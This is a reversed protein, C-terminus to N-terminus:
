AALWAPPQMLTGQHSQKPLNSLTKRLGVQQVLVKDLISSAKNRLQSAPRIGIVTLNYICNSRLLGQETPTKLRGQVQSECPHPLFRVCVM